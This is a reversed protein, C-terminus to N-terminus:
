AKKLLGIQGAHYLDHQIIGHLLIYRATTGHAPARDLLPDRVKGAAAVLDSHARKLQAVLARWEKDTGIVAPPWDVDAPVEKVEVGALRRAVVRKWTTMHRVIEAITHAGAIPRRVAQELTVGKLLELVASGHWAHAKFSRELQDLIRRGERM